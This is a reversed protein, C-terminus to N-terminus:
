VVARSAILQRITLARFSIWEQGSRQGSAPLANPTPVVAWAGGATGTGTRSMTGSTRTRGTKTGAGTTRGRASPAPRERALVARLRERIPDPEHAPEERRPGPTERALVAALRERIAEAGHSQTRDLRDEGHAPLGAM